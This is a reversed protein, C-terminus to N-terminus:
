KLVIRPLIDIRELERTAGRLMLDSSYLPGSMSKITGEPVLISKPQLTTFGGRIV